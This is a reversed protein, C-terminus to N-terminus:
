KNIKVSADKGGHPGLGRFCQSRHTLEQSLVELTRFNVDCLGKDLRRGAQGSSCWQSIDGAQMHRSLVCPVSGLNQPIESSHDTGAEDCTIWFTLLNIQQGLPLPPAIYTREERTNSLDARRSSFIEYLFGLRCFVYIM